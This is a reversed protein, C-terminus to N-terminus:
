ETSGSAREVIELVVTAHRRHKKVKLMGELHEQFGAQHLLPNADQVPIFSPRDSEVLAHSESAFM